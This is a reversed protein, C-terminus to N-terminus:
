GRQLCLIYDALYKTLLNIEMDIIQEEPPIITSHPKQPQQHFMNLRNFNVQMRM